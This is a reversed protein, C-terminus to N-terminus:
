CGSLDADTLDFRELAVRQLDRGHLDAGRLSPRVELPLANREENFRAPDRTLLDLWQDRDFPSIPM